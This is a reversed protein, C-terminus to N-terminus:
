ELILIKLSNLKEFTSNHFADKGITKVSSPLFIEGIKAEYFCNNGISQLQSNDDFIFSVIEQCYAFAYQNFHKIFSPIKVNKINRPAFFLVDYNENNINSKYFIIKSDEDKM